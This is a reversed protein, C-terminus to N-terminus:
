QAKREFAGIDNAPGSPRAVVATFDDNVTIPTPTVAADIAASGAALSLDENAADTFM